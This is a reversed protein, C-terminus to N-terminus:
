EVEFFGYFDDDLIQEDTFPCGIPYESEIPKRVGFGALKGQKIALKRGQQYAEEIASELFSKFSPNEALDKKVRARHEIVSDYWSGRVRMYDPADSQVTLKLLHALLVMLNSIFARKESKGMHELEELLHEWDIENFRNEKIQKIITERWLNYDHNYLTQLQTQTIM